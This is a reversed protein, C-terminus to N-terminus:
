KSFLRSIEEYYPSRKDLKLHEVAKKNEFDEINKDIRDILLKVAEFNNRKCAKHLATFGNNDQQNYSLQDCEMLIKLGENFSGWSCVMLPTNGKNKGRSSSNVGAGNDILKKMSKTDQIQCCHLLPTFEYKAKDRKEIDLADLSLLFDLIDYSRNRVAIILPTWGTESDIRNVDISSNYTRKVNELNKSKVASIFNQTDYESFVDNAYFSAEIEKISKISLNKLGFTENKLTFYVDNTLIVVKNNISELAYNKAIRMIKEDNIEGEYYQSKDISIVEKNNSISAMALWARQKTSGKGQDKQRNLEQIVVEPIVIKSYINAKIILDLVRPRNLLVCTDFVCINEDVGEDNGCLYDISVGFVKAISILQSAGPESNGCEWKSLTTRTTGVKEALDEQSMKKKIRLNLIRQGLDESSFESM